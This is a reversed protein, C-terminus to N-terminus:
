KKTFILNNKLLIVMLFLIELIKLNLCFNFIYLADAFNKIYM